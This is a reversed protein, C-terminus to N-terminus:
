RSVLSGCKYFGSCNAGIFAYNITTITVSLWALEDPIFGVIIFCVASGALAITNCIRMKNVESMFRFAVLVSLIQTLRLFNLPFKRLAFILIKHLFNGL